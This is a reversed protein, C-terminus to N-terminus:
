YYLEYRTVQQIWFNCWSGGSRCLQSTTAKIEVNTAIYIVLYLEFIVGEACFIM